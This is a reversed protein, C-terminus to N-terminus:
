WTVYLSDINTYINMDLFLVILYWMLKGSKMVLMKYQFVEKLYDELKWFDLM